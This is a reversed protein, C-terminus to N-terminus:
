AAMAEDEGGLATVLESPVNAAACLDGFTPYEAPELGSADIIGLVQSHRAARAMAAYARRVQRKLAEVALVADMDLWGFGQQGAPVRSTLGTPKVASAIMDRIRKTVYERVAQENLDDDALIAGMAATVLDEEDRDGELIRAAIDKWVQKM